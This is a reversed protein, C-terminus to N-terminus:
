RTIVLTEQENWEPFKLFYVGLSYKGLDIATEGHAALKWTGLNRGQADYVLCSTALPTFNKVTFNGRSPNPYVVFKADPGVIPPVGTEPIQMENHVTNTVIPKQYDFYIYATNKISDGHRLTNLTNLGIKYSVYGQSGAMDVSSDPLYINNFTFIQAGDSYSKTCTHSFGTLKVYLMPLTLDLTDIVIVRYATDTGTNQFRIHYSIEKTKPNIYGEPSNQKDNPDFAGVVKLVLSDRNDYRLCASDSWAELRVKTYAPTFLDVSGNLHITLKQFPAINVKWMYVGNGLSDDPMRDAGTFQIEEPFGLYVPCVQHRFGENHIQLIYEEEFGQRARFGAAASLTIRVAATTDVVSLPINIHLSDGANLQFNNGWNCVKTSLSAPLIGFELDYTGAGEFGGFLGTGGEALWHLDSNSERIMVSEDLMCDGMTKACDGDIDVFLRGTLYAMANKEIHNADGSLEVLYLFKDAYVLMSRMPDLSTKMREWQNKANNLHYIGAPYLDATSSQLSFYDSKDSELDRISFDKPFDANLVRDGGAGTYNLYKLQPNQEELLVLSNNSVTKLFPIKWANVSYASFIGGNLLALNKIPLGGISDFEGGFYLTGQYAALDDVYGVVTGYVEAFAFQHKIRYLRNVGQTNNLLGGLYLDNNFWAMTRIETGNALNLNLSNIEVWKGGPIDFRLLGARSNGGTYSRYSVYMSTDVGLTYQGHISDVALPTYAPYSVWSTNDWTKLRLSTARNGISANGDDLIWLKNQFASAHYVQRTALPDNVTSWKQAHAMCGFGLALVCLVPSFLNRKKM